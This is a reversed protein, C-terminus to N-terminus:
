RCQGVLGILQINLQM